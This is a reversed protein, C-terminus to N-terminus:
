GEAKGWELRPWAAWDELHATWNLVSCRATENDHIHIDFRRSDKALEGPSGANNSIVYNRLVDRSMVLFRFGHQKRCAFVFHLEPNLPQDIASRRINFQYKSEMNRKLRTERSTKVQIRLMAGTKDNVSYIDDGKDIEPLAVNYGRWALEGMVALQGAKGVYPNKGTTMNENGQALQWVFPTYRNCHALHTRRSMLGPAMDVSATSMSPRHRVVPTFM